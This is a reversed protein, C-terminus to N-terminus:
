KKIIITTFYPYVTDKQIKGIYENDMGACSVAYSKSLINHKELIRYIKPAYKGAKMIVISDSQELIKEYDTNDSVAPIVALKQNGECLSTEAMAACVCFSPVGSIIETDFGLAKIKKLAYTCTSYVSVDGVTIMAADEGNELIESVTEIMKEDADNFDINLDMPFVAEIIKKNETNVVKRINEFALSKEGYKRVPVIIYKVRELIKVAKLTINEPDGTGTGVAYFKGSM